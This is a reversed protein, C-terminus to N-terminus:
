YLSGAVQEAIQEPADNQVDAKPSNKQGRSALTVTFYLDRVRSSIM